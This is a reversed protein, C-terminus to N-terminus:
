SFRQIREQWQRAQSLIAAPDLTTLIRESLLHRGNVWVDTVDNRSAAYVLQSVPHYVPQTEIGDLRVATLDAAKGATVSGFM